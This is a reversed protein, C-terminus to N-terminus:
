EHKSCINEKEHQILRMRAESETEYPGGAKQAFAHRYSGQIEILLATWCSGTQDHRLVFWKANEQALSSRIPFGTSLSIGFALILVNLIQITQKPKQKM